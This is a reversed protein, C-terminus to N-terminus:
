MKVVKMFANLNDEAKVILYYVGKTLHSIDLEVSGQTYNISPSPVIEGLANYIRISSFRSVSDPLKVNLVSGVPNPWILLDTYTPQNTQLPMCDSHNVPLVEVTIDQDLTCGYNDEIAVNYTTTTSPTAEVTDCTTCSLNTNPSWNYDYENKENFSISWKSLNGSNLLGFADSMM